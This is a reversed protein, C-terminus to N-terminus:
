FVVTAQLKRNNKVCYKYKYECKCNLHLIIQCFVCNTNKLIWNRINVRPFQLYVLNTWYKTWIKGTFIWLLRFARDIIVIYSCSNEHRQLFAFYIWLMDTSRISHLAAIFDLFIYMYREFYFLITLTAHFPKDAMYRWQAVAATVPYRLVAAVDKERERFVICKGYQTRRRQKESMRDFMANGSRGKTDASSDEKASISNKYTECQELDTFKSSM